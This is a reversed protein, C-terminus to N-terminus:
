VLKPPPTLIDPTFNPKLRIVHFVELKLDHVSNNHIFISLKLRNEFEEENNKEENESDMDMYISIELCDKELDLISYFYVVGNSWILGLLLLLVM